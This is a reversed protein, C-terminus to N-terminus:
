VEVHVGDISESANMCLTRYAPFLYTHVMGHRGAYVTGQVAFLMSPVRPILAHPFLVMRIPIFMTMFM